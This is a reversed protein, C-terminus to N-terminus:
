PQFTLRHLLQVDNLIEIGRAQCFSIVNPAYFVRDMACLLDARGDIATFVVPDDNPDALVVEQQIM